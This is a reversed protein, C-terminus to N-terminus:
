TILFPVLPFLHVFYYNYKVKDIYLFDYKITTHHINGIGTIARDLAYTKPRKIAPTAPEFGALPM